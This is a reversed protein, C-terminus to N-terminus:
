NNINKAYIVECELRTEVYSIIDDVHYWRDYDDISVINGNKAVWCPYIGDRFVFLNYRPVGDIVRGVVCESNNHPKVNHYVKWRM